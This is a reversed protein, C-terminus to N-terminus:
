SDLSSTQDRNQLWHDLGVLSSEIVQRAAERANTVDGAEIADFIKQHSDTGCSPIAPNAHVQKLGERLRVVFYRYLEWLAKNGTSAVVALHFESDARAFREPDDRRTEADNRDALLRRLEKLDKTTRRAAALGAAQVDYAMQIEFIERVKASHISGIVAEPNANSLVFTGSGRRPELMGMKVLGRIAERV